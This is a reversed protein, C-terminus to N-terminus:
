QGPTQTLPAPDESGESFDGFNVEIAHAVVEFLLKLRGSFVQDISVQTNLLILKAVPNRVLATTCELVDLVLKRAKPGDLGALLNPAAQAVSQNPNAGATLGQLTVMVELAKMAPFQTTQFEIDGDPLKVILPVTKLNSLSM